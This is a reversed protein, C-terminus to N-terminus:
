FVLDALYTLNRENEGFVENFVQNGEVTFGFKILAFAAQYKYYPDSFNNSAIKEALQKVYQKTEIPDSNSLSKLKYTDLESRSINISLILTPILILITLVPRFVEVDVINRPKSQFNEKRKKLGLELSQKRMGILSGGLIWGWISVGINDISIFSQANFGIWAAFIAIVIKQDNGHTEYILKIGSYFIYILILLYSVGLLIGGTAFMQILTNHANNSGIEFGYKLAYGPERFEKFYDGYSDIGVGFIPSSKFMEIGARWYYGRVSVSDKYLFERLPGMQLMGLAGCIFITLSLFSISQYGKIKNRYFFLCIFTISSILIVLIGQLSKSAVVASVALIILFISFFKYPKPYDTLVIGFFILVVFIALTSSAFNPNGLTSIMRNYPNNWNIFDFGIIQIVGYGTVIAFTFLTYKLISRVFRFTCVNSIYIFVSILSLYALLGNRRQTEGILAVIKVDTFLFAVALSTCFFLSILIEPSTLSIKSQVNKRFFSLTTGLLWAGLIFLIILKPTNFPDAAEPIMITTTALLGLGLLRPSAQVQHTKKLNKQQDM